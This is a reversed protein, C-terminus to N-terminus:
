QETFDNYLPLGDLCAWRQKVNVHSSRWFVQVFLVQFIYKFFIYQERKIKLKQFNVYIYKHFFKQSDNFVWFNLM